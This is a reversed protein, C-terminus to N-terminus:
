AAPPLDDPGADRRKVPLFPALAQNAARYVSAGDALLRVAASQAQAIQQAGLGLDRGTNVVIRRLAFERESTVSTSSPPAFPALAQQLIPNLM